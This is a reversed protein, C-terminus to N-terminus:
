NLSFLTLNFVYSVPDNGTHTIHFRQDRSKKIAQSFRPCQRKDIMETVKFHKPVYDGM